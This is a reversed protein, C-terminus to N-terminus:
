ACEGFRVIEKDIAIPASGVNSVEYSNVQRREVIHTLVGKIHFSRLQLQLAASCIPRATWSSPVFATFCPASETDEPLTLIRHSKLVPSGCSGSKRMTQLLNASRAHPLWMSLSKAIDYECFHNRACQM